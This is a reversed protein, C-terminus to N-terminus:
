LINGSRDHLPSDPVVCRLDRVEGSLTHDDVRRQLPADYAIGARAASHPVPVTHPDAPFVARIHRPVPNAQVAASLDSLNTPAKLAALQAEFNQLGFYDAPRGFYTVYLQQVVGAYDIAAMIQM